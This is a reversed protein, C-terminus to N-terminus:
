LDEDDVFFKQKYPEEEDTLIVIRTMSNNDVIANEYLLVDRIFNTKYKKKLM